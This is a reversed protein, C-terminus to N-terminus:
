DSHDGDDGTANAGSSHQSCDKLNDICRPDRRNDIDAVVEHEVSKM